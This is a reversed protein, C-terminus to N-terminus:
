HCSVVSFSSCAHMYLTERAWTTKEIKGTPDSDIFGSYKRETAVGV